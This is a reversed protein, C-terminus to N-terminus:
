VDEVVLVLEFSEPVLPVVVLAEVGFLSVDGLLLEVVQAVVVVCAPLVGM